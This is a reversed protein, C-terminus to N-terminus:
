LSASGLLLLQLGLVDKVVEHFVDLLFLAVTLLPDQLELAANCVFLFTHLATNLPLFLILLNGFRGGVLALIASLELHPVIEVDILQPVVEHFALHVFFHLCGAADIFGELLDLRM